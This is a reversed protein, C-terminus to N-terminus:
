SRPRFPQPMGVDAPSQEAAGPQEPRTDSDDGDRGQGDRDNRDQDNPDRDNGDPDNGSSPPPSTGADPPPQSTMPSMRAGLPLAIPSIECMPERPALAGPRGYEGTVTPMKASTGM